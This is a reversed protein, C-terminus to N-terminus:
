ASSGASSRPTSAKARRAASVSANSTTPGGSATDSGRQGGRSLRRCQSPPPIYACGARPVLWRAARQLPSLRLPVHRHGRPQRRVPIEELGDRRGARQGHGHRVAGPGSDAETADFRRPFSPVILAARDDPYREVARPRERRHRRPTSASAVATPMTAISAPIAKAALGAVAVRDLPACSVTEISEGAVPVSNTPLETSTGTAPFALM